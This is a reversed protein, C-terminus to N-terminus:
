CCTCQACPLLTLPSVPCGLAMILLQLGGGSAFNSLWQDGDDIVAGWAELKRATTEQDQADAHAQGDQANALLPKWLRGIRRAAKLFTSVRTVAPQVEQPNFEDMEWVDERRRKTQQAPIEPAVPGTDVPTEKPQAGSACEGKGAPEMKAGEPASMSGAAEELKPTAEELYRLWAGAVGCARRAEEAACVPRNLGLAILADGCPGSPKGEEEERQQQQQLHQQLQLRTQQQHEQEEELLRQWRWLLVFCAATLRGTLFPILYSLDYASSEVSADRVAKLEYSSELAELCRSLESAGVSTQRGGGSGETEQFETERTVSSRAKLAGLLQVQVQTQVEENEPSAASALKWRNICQQHGLAFRKPQVLKSHFAFADLTEKVRRPDLALWDCPGGLSLSVPQVIRDCAASAQANADVCVERFDPLEAMWIYDSGFVECSGGDPTDTAGETERPTSGSAHDPDVPGELGEAEVLREEARGGLHPGASDLTLIQCIYSDVRSTSGGYLQVLAEFLDPCMESVRCFPEEENEQEDNLGKATQLEEDTGQLHVNAAPLLEDCLCQLLPCLVVALGTATTGIRQGLAATSKRITQKAASGLAALAPCSLTQRAAEKAYAAAADPSPSLSAGMMTLRVAPLILFVWAQVALLDETIVGTPSLGLNRVVAPPKLLAAAGCHVAASPPSNGLAELFGKAISQAKPRLAKFFQKQEKTLCADGAARRPQLAHVIVKGLQEARCVAGLYYALDASAAAAGDEGAASYVAEDSLDGSGALAEQLEGLETKLDKLAAGLCGRAAGVARLGEASADVCSKSGSGAAHLMVSLLQYRAWGDM